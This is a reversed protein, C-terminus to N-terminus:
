RVTRALRLLKSSLVLHSKRAISMNIDFVMKNQNLSLMIIAGDNGIEIDDSISLISSNSLRMKIAPWHPRDLYDIYLVHCGNLNRELSTKQIIKLRQGKVTKDSLADLAQKMESAANVCINISDSAALSEPPWDTFMVFNYVFASKMMGEQVPQAALLCPAFLLMALAKYM